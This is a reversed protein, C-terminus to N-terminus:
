NSKNPLDKCSKNESRVQNSFNKQDPCSKNTVHVAELPSLKTAGYHKKDFDSKKLLAAQFYFTDNGAATQKTLKDTELDVEVTMQTTSQDGDSSGAVAYTGLIEIDNTDLRLKKRSLPTKIKPKKSLCRSYLVLLIQEDKSTPIDEMAFQLTAVQKQNPNFALSKINRAKPQKQQVDQTDCVKVTNKKSKDLDISAINFRQNTKSPPIPPRVEKVEAPPTDATEPNPQSPQGGGLKTNALVPSSALLLAYATSNNIKM